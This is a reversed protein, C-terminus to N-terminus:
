AEASRPRRAGGVRARRCGSVLEVCHSKRWGFRIRSRLKSLLTIKVSQNKIQV